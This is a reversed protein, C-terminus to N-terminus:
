NKEDAEISAKVKDALQGAAWIIAGEFAKGSDPDALVAAAADKSFADEVGDWDLLVAESLCRKLREGEDTVGDALLKDNLAVHDPNWLRRVKLRIGTFLPLPIDGVWDGANLAAYGKGLDSLKM